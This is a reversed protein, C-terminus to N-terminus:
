KPLNQQEELKKNQAQITGILYRNQIGNLQRLQTLANQQAVFVADKSKEHEAILNSLVKENELYSKEVAKLKEEISLADAVQTTASEDLEEIKPTMEDPQYVKNKMM